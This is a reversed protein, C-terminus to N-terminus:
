DLNGSTFLELEEPSFMDFVESRGINKPTTILDSNYGNTHPWKKYVCNVCDNIKIQV